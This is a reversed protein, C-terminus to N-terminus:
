KQHDRKYLWYDSFLLCANKGNVQDQGSIVRCIFDFTKADCWNAKSRQKVCKAVYCESGIYVSESSLCSLIHKWTRVCKVSYVRPPIVILDAMDTLNVLLDVM